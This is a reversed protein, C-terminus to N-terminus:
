FSVMEVKPVRMDIKKNLQEVVKSISWVHTTSSTVDDRITAGSGSNRLETAIRNISWTRNGANAEGPEISDDIIASDGGDTGPPSVGLEIRTEEENFNELVLESHEVRIARIAEKLNVRGNVLVDGRVRLDGDVITDRLKAM